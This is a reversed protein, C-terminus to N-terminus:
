NVISSSVSSFDTNLYRSIVVKEDEFTDYLANNGCILTLTVLGAAQMSKVRQRFEDLSMHCRPFWEETSVYDRKKPGEGCASMLWRAFWTREKKWEREEKEHRSKITKTLQKLESLMARNIPDALLQNCKLTQIQSM